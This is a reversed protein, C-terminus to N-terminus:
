GPYQDYPALTYGEIEFQLYLWCDESCYVTLNKCGNFVLVGSNNPGFADTGISDPVAASVLGTCKAFARYGIKTVGYPINITKLATCGEFAYEGISDLKSPLNITELSKCNNFAFAPITTVSEPLIIHKLSHCDRFASEGISTVSNPITVSTLNECLYFTFEGINPVGNPITISTLNECNWFARGGISTVSNPITISTLSTCDAFASDGISTVSSPITISPLSTCGSFASSEISTVGNPITVSTLNTCGRFLFRGIRAASNSITVSTLNTCGEFVGDGLDTVSNPIIVSTLSTCGSFAERGIRNVSNPLTISTLNTCGKFAYGEIYAIGDSITVSTLNTNNAFTSYDIYKVKYGDIQSPITIQSESGTYETITATSYYLTYEFLSTDIVAQVEVLCSASYNKGGYSITATVTTGGDSKATIKGNSVEAIGGNTSSWTVPSGSPVVTATLTATDGENLSLTTQSLTVSPMTVTVSYGTTKTSSGDSYSITVTKTGASSSDFGSFTCKDTVVATSGNSYIATVVLGATDLYDGVYYATKYPSTTISISSLPVPSVTVKYTVSKSISGEAYTVTLTQTGARSSDFGTITCRGSVDVTSGDSYYATVSLGGTNLQDGVYYSTKSPASNMTISTLLPASVVVTFTATRTIGNETYTVTVTKTGAGSSDFGSLTCKGTVNATTGDNYEATVALGSKDLNNGTFYVTKSPPSTIIINSLSKEVTITCSATKGGDTTTVTITATGPAKATVVGNASVQAVSTNSSKWSVTNTTANSPTITAVLTYSDGIGMTYRAPTVSVRTVAVTSNGSSVTLIVTTGQEVYKGATISQSMVQGAPVTQSGQTTISYSLRSSTLASAAENQNKGVCNPVSVQYGSSVWVVVTSYPDLTTGPTTDQRIVLGSSVTMSEEYYVTMNLKSSTMRSRAASETMYQVDPVSVTEKGSSVTVYITSGQSVSQGGSPSQRIIQGAPITDSYESASKSIYLNYGFLLQQAEDFTMGAVSPIDVQVSSDITSNEPGLSVVLEIVTGPKAAENPHVSQYLISGPAAFDNYEERVVVSFGLQELTYTAASLEYGTIDPVTITEEPASVTVDVMSGVYAVSGASPNQYLVIDKEFYDDYVLDAIRLRLECDSLLAEAQSIPIAQIAPVRSMGDPVNAITRPVILQPIGFMLLAFVIVAAASAGVLMAKTRGSVNVKTQRIKDPVRVPKEKRSLQDAFQRATQTRKEITINMANLISTEIYKPIRVFEAPSPMTDEKARSYSDMPIKGTIARYMTAAVAYVDTWDQQDTEEYYQEPPAYGVKLVTSLSRSSHRTTMHRAAGFDILVVRGDNCLMINDPAIDRHIIGSAHIKELTELVKLIIPVCEKWHIRNNKSRELRSLLTEGELYEMVIYATGSDEFCEFIKAVGPISGLQAIRQAEELFSKRGDIFVHNTARNVMIVKTGAPRQALESPMYEKIAVRTGLNSDWAVYTVGFGGCGLPRGITYRGKLVTRPPLHCYDQMNSGEVYGCHPCQTLHDDINILCNICRKM